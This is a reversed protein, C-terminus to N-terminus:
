SSTDVPTSSVRVYMGFDYHRQRQHVVLLVGLGSVHQQGALLCSFAHLTHHQLM